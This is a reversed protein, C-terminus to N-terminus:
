RDSVYIEHVFELRFYTGNWKRYVVRGMPLKEALDHVLMLGIKKKNESRGSFGIGNDKIRLSVRRGKQECAVILRNGEGRGQFAHKFVNSLVENCIMGMTIASDMDLQLPLLRYVIEVDGDIYNQRCLGILALLYEQMDVMSIDDSQYLLEHIMAMSQLRSTNDDIVAHTIKSQTRKRQLWMMSITVQLNNKVRHHIEKLLAEKTSITQLLKQNTLSLEATREQVKETLEDKSKQLVESLANAKETAEKQLREKESRMVNIRDALGFSLLLLEVFVGIQTGWTTFFNIPLLGINKLGTLTTGILLVIWALLYFKSARINYRFYAILGVTVLSLTTTFLVAVSLIIGRYYDLVVTLGLSIISFYLVWALSRDLRPLEKKTDLFSRSFIIATVHALVILFPIITNNIQPSEPWLYRLALGSLALLALLNSLQFVVYYFYSRERISLFLFFNYLVMIIAGGYFIGLLATKEIESGYYQDDTLLTLRLDMSSQSTIHLYFVESSRPGMAIPFIINEDRKAHSSVAFSDGSVRKAYTGDRNIRYFSVRDLLPYEFKLLRKVTYNQPNKLAFKIWFDSKTLGFGASHGGLPHFSQEIKQGRLADLTLKGSKDELYSYHKHLAIVDPASIDVYEQAGLLRLFLLMLIVVHM